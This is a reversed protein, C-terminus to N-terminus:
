SIEHFLSVNRHIFCKRVRINFKSVPYMEPMKEILELKQSLKILFELSVKNSYNLSLFDAVLEIDRM